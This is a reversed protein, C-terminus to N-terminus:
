DQLQRRYFYVFTNCKYTSAVSCSACFYKLRVTTVQFTDVAAAADSTTTPGATTFTEFDLRLTCIDTFIQYKTASIQYSVNNYM